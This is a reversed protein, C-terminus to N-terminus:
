RCVPKGGEVTSVSSGVPLSAALVAPANLAAVTQTWGADVTVCSNASAPCPVLDLARSANFARPVPLLTSRSRAFTINAVGLQKVDGSTCLIPVPDGWYSPQEVLYTTDKKRLIASLSFPTAGVWAIQQAVQRDFTLAASSLAIVADPIRGEMDVM